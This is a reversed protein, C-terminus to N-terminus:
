SSLMAGYAALIFYPKSLDFYGQQSQMSILRTFSCTLWGNNNNVVPNSLGVTPNASNMLSPTVYKANVYHQVSFDPM